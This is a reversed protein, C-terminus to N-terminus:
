QCTSSQSAKTLTEVAHKAAAAAEAKNGQFDAKAADLERLAAQLATVAAQMKDCAAPKPACQPYVKRCVDKTIKGHEFCALAESPSTGCDKACRELAGCADSGKCAKCKGGCPPYLETCRNFPLRGENFCGEAKSAPMGCHQICMALTSYSDCPVRDCRPSCPPHAAAAAAGLALAAGALLLLRRMM